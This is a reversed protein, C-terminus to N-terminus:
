DEGPTLTESQGGRAKWDVLVANLCMPGSLTSSGPVQIEAARLVYYHNRRLGFIRDARPVGTKEYVYQVDYDYSNRQYFTSDQVPCWLPDIFSIYYSYGREYCRYRALSWSDFGDRQMCYQMAAATYYDVAGNNQVQTWYTHAPFATKGSTGQVTVAPLSDLVQAMTEFTREEVQVQRQGDTDTSTVLCRLTRPVYRVAVVVYTAVKQAVSDLKFGPEYWEDDPPNRLSFRFLNPLCYIGDDSADAGDNTRRYLTDSGSASWVAARRRMSGSVFPYIDAGEATFSLEEANHSLYRRTYVTEDTAAFDYRQLRYVYNGLTAVSDDLLRQARAAINLMYFITSDHVWGRWKEQLAQKAADDMDSTLRATENVDRIDIYEDAMKEVESRKCALLVKAVTRELTVTGASLRVTPDGGTPSVDFATAGAEGGPTAQAFMSIRRGTYTFREDSVTMFHNMLTKLDPAETTTYTVPSNGDVFATIQDDRLNAGVYVHKRGSTTQFNVTLRYYRLTGDAAYVGDTLNTVYVTTHQVQGATLQERGDADLPVVFVTLSRVENEADTGPHTTETYYTSDSDVGNARTTTSADPPLITMELQLAVDGAAATPTDPACPELAEDLCSVWGGATALLLILAPM